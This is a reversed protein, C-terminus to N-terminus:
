EKGQPKNSKGHVFNKITKDKPYGGAERRLYFIVLTCLKTQNSEKHEM